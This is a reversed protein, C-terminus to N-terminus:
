GCVVSPRDLVIKPVLVNLVSDTVCLQSWIPEFIEPGISDRWSKLPYGGSTFRRRPLYSEVLGGGLFQDSQIMAM